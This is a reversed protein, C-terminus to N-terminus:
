QIDFIWMQMTVKARFALITRCYQQTYDQTTKKKNPSVLPEKLPRRLIRAFNTSTIHPPSHTTYLRTSYVYPIRFVFPVIARPGKGCDSNSSHACWRTGVERVPIYAHTVRDRFTTLKVHHVLGAASLFTSHCKTPRLPATHTLTAHLFPAPLHKFYQLVLDTQRM